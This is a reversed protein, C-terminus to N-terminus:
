TRRSVLRPQGPPEDRPRQAGQLRPSAPRSMELGNPRGVSANRLDMVEVAPGHARIAKGLYVSRPSERLSPIAHDMAEEQIGGIANGQDVGAPSHKIAGVRRWRHSLERIEDM